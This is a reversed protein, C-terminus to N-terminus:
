RPLSDRDDGGRPRVRLADDRLRVEYRRGDALPQWPGQLTTSRAAASWLRGPQPRSWPDVGRPGALAFELPPQATGGAGDAAAASRVALRELRYLPRLGLEGARPSWRLSRVDLRWEDGVLDFAQTRGSPLWTLLARYRRTGTRELFLEAVAQERAAQVYTSLHSAVPWATAVVWAAVLAMLLHGAAAWRRGALWRAWALLTTVIAFGAFVLLAGNM